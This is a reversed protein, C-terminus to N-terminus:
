LFKHFIKGTDFLEFSSALGASSFLDIATLVSKEDAFLSNKKAAIPLALCLFMQRLKLIVM